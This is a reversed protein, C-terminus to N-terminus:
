HKKRLIVAGLGLLMLTCPEPVPTGEVILYATSISATPLTVPQPPYYGTLQAIIEAKGDLLFDWTAGSRQQFSQNDTYSGDYGGVYVTWLGQPPEMCVEIQVNWVILKGSFPDFPDRDVGPTFIGTTELRVDQISQFSMGLDFAQTRGNPYGLIDGVLSPLPIQVTIALASTQILVSVAVFLVLTRKRM